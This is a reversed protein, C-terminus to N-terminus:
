SQFKNIVGVCPIPMHNDILTKVNKLKMLFFFVIPISIFKM